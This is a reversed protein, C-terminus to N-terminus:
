QDNYYNLNQWTKDYNANKSNQWLKIQELNPTKFFNQSQWLKLKTVFQTKCVKLCIMIQINDCNSNELLKLKAVNHAKDCISNQDCYIKERVIVTIDCNSNQRM